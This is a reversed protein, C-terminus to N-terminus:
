VEPAESGPWPVVGQEVRGELGVRVGLISGPEPMVFKLVESLEIHGVAVGVALQGQVHEVHQAFEPM